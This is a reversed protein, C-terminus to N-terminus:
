RVKPGAQVRGSLVVIEIPKGIQLLEDSAPELQVALLATSLVV